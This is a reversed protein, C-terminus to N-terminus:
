RQPTLAASNRVEEATNEEVRIFIGLRDEVNVEFTRFLRFVIVEEDCRLHKAHRVCTLITQTHRRDTFCSLCVYQEGRFRFVDGCRVEEVMTMM